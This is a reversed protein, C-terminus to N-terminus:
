RVEEAEGFITEVAEAVDSANDLVALLKGLLEVEKWGIALPEFIGELGEGGPLSVLIRGVLNIFDETEGSIWVQVEEFIKKRDMKRRVERTM